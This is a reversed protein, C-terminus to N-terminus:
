HCIITQQYNHLLQNFATFDTYQM